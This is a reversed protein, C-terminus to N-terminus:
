KNKLAFPVMIVKCKYDLYKNIQIYGDGVLKSLSGSFFFAPILYYIQHDV